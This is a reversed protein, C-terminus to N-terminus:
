ILGESQVKLFLFVSNKGAQVNFNTPLFKLQPARAGQNDIIINNSIATSM